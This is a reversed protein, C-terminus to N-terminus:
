GLVFVGCIIRNVAAGSQQKILVVLFQIQHIRQPLVILVCFKFTFDSFDNCKCHGASFNARLWSFKCGVSEWATVVAKM